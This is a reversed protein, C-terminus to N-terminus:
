KTRQLERFHPATSCWAELKNLLDFVEANGILLTDKIYAKHEYGHLTPLYSHVAPVDPENLLVYAIETEGYREFNRIAEKASTGGKYSLPIRGEYEEPKVIVFRYSDLFPEM